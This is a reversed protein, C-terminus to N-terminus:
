RVETEILDAGKYGNDVFNTAITEGGVFQKFINSIKLENVLAGDEYYSDAREVIATAGSTNGTILKSNFNSLTSISSDLTGDVSVDSVKLSKQVFWKGDSARLVDRKPYYFEQVEENFLLRMLFRISKETGRSRYFDKVHKLLLTKDALSEKPILRLFNDYFKQLFIDVSQDIDSNSKLNKIQNGAGNEQELFEYYAEM